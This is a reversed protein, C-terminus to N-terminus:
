TEFRLACVQISITYQAKEYIPIIFFGNPEPETAFKVTGETSKLLVKIDRAYNIKVDPAM